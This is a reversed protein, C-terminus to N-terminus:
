ERLRIIKVAPPEKPVIEKSIGGPSSSELAVLSGIRLGSILNRSRSVKRAGLLGQLFM